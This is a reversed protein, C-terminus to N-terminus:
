DREKFCKEIEKLHYKIEDDRQNLEYYVRKIIEYAEKCRKVKYYGWALSDLYYPSNPEKELAEKVLKIGRKIKINSDIYLYGLYNLYVPDKIKKIVDELKKAVDLILKKNKNTASEYEFIAILALYDLNKTKKYLKKALNLAKNYDKKVRYLELLLEEDGIKEAYKIAEDYNREYLLFEIIKKAFREDKYTSYLKKYVSILGEIDNKMSYMSALTLCVDKNCGYIRMHTELYAIAEKKKNLYFYM